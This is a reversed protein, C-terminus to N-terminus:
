QAIFLLNVVRSAVVPQNVGSDMRFYTHIVYDGSMQLYM